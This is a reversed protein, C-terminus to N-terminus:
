RKPARSGVAQSFHSWEAENLTGDKRKEILLVRDHLWALERYRAPYQLRQDELYPRANMYYGHLWYFFTNWVMEEDLGRKRTM